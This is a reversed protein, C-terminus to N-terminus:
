KKQIDHKEDTKGKSANWWFGYFFCEIMFEGSRDIYFPPLSLAFSHSASNIRLPLLIEAFKVISPFHSSVSVEIFTVSTGFAIVSAMLDLNGSQVIVVASLVSVAPLPVM